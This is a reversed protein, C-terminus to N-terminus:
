PFTKEFEEVVKDTLNMSEQAYLLVGSEANKDLIFTYGGENAVKKVVSELDKNFKDLIERNKEQVEKNMEGARKQYLILKRQLAEEKERRAEPSMVASQRTLEEQLQKLESEDLDIIKQRAKVFEAMSAKARMGAKTKELVEQADIYGIKVGEASQAPVVSSVSGVWLLGLTFGIIWKHIRASQM